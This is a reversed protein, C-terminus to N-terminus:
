IDSLQKLLQRAEDSSAKDSSAAVDTLLRKLNEDHGGQKILAQALHLKIRANDPMIKLAQRFLPIAKEPTNQRNYIVALTDIIEPVEPALKVAKEAHPMAVDLSGTEALFWAYDNLIIPNEPYESILSQYLSRAKDNHGAVMQFQALLHRLSAPIKAMDDVGEELLAIAEAQDNVAWLARAYAMKTDTSTKNAEYAQKYHKVADAPRGEMDAQQAALLQVTTNNGTKKVLSAVYPAAEKAEGEKQLLRSIVIQAPIFTPKIELLNRLTTIAEKTRGLNVLSFAMQYRGEVSQPNVALLSRFTGVSEEYKDDAQQIQALLLLVEPDSSAMDKAKIATALALDPRSEVLYLRALHFYPSVANPHKASVQKLYATVEKSKRAAVQTRVYAGLIQMDTPLFELTRALVAEAKDWQEARNLLGGYMLAVTKDSPDLKTANDLESFALDQENARLYALASVLYGASSDDAEEKIRDGIRLMEESNGARFHVMALRVKQAISASDLRESLSSLLREAEEEDGAQLALSALGTAAGFNEPEAKLSEALLSRAQEMDGKSIAASVLMGIRQRDTRDLVPNQLAAIALDTRGLKLNSLALAKIAAAPVRPNSAFRQLHRVATEDNGLAASAVGSVIQSPVYQPNVGLIRDALLKAEEYRGNQLAIVSELHVLPGTEFRDAKLADIITAAGAMDGNQMLAQALTIRIQPSVPDLKQARTLVAIVDDTASEGKRLLMLAYSLLTEGSADESAAARGALDYAADRQGKLAEIGALRILTQPNNQDVKQLASFADEVRGLMLYADTAVYMMEPSNRLAEDTEEDLLRLVEQPLGLRLYTQILPLLVRSHAVGYDFARILEKNAEELRHQNLYLIGLQIRAEGNDPQAQVANRLEIIAASIQGNEVQTEARAIHKQAQEAPSGMDCGVTLLALASTM